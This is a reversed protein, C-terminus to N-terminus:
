GIYAVEVWMGAIQGCGRRHQSRMRPFLTWPFIDLVAPVSSNVSPAQSHASPGMVVDVVVEDVVLSDMGAGVVVHLCVVDM